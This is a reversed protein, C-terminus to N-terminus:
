SLLIDVNAQAAYEPSLLIKIWSIDYKKNCLDINKDSLKKIDDKKSELLISNNILIFSFFHLLNTVM